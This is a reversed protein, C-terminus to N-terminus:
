DTKKQSRKENTGELTWSYVGDVVFTCAHEHMRSAMRARGARPDAGHKALWVVHM